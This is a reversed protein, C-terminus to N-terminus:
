GIAGFEEEPLRALEDALGPDNTRWWLQTHHHITCIAPQHPFAATFDSSRLGDLLRAVFRSAVESEDPDFAIAAANNLPQLISPEVGIARLADPMWDDSGFDLEYAWHSGPMIWMAGPLISSWARALLVALNQAHPIPVQTAIARASDNLTRDPPGIWGCARSTPGADFGFSGSNYYLSKLGGSTLTALVQEYDIIRPM